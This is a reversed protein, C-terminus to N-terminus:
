KIQNKILIYFLVMSAWIPILYIAAIFGMLMIWIILLSMGIFGMITLVQRIKMRWFTGNVKALQINIQRREAYLVQLQGRHWDASKKAAAQYWENQLNAFWNKKTTFMTQLAVAQAKILENGIHKIKKDIDNLRSQLQQSLGEDNNSFSVKTIATSKSKQKPIWRIM